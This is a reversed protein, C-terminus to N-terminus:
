PMMILSTVSVRWGGNVRCTRIILWLVPLLTVHYDGMSSSRILGDYTKVSTAVTARETSLASKVRGEYSGVTPAIVAM